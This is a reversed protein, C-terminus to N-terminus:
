IVGLEKLHNKRELYKKYSETESILVVESIHKNISVPEPWVVDFSGDFCNTIKEYTESPGVSLPITDYVVDADQDFDKLKEILERVKM